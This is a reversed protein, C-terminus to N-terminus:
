GHEGWFKALVNYVNSECKTEDMTDYIEEEEEENDDDDM